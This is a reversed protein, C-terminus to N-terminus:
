TDCTSRRAPPMIRSNLRRAGKALRIEIIWGALCTPLADSAHNRTGRLARRCEYRAQGHEGDCAAAERGDDEAQARRHAGALQSFGVVDSVLIAAIKRTESM